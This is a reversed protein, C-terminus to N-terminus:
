PLEIIRTPVYPSAPTLAGKAKVYDLVIDALVERPASPVPEILMSFTDGGANTFNNTVMVIPKTSGKPVDTGDDLTVKTVRSGPTNSVKWEFKFGAIQLFGGTTGGGGVAASYVSHELVQWLLDGTIARVVATNGFPLVSYVDGIVLDCPTTASCGTRVLGTTQPKYSSPLAARIGGGNSFAIQANTPAGKYRDLLADSVLDGIPLEVRREKVGDRILVDTTTGVKVDFQVALADAYPKLLAAAGPDPTVADAACSKGDAACALGTPCAVAPCFASRQCKGATCTWPKADTPCAASASCTTAALVEPPINYSSHGLPDVIEAKASTVVGAAVTVNVRGYMRGKSKSEIVLVPGVNLNAMLDTHDGLVVDIGSLGKAFDILPGGLAGTSDKGTTGMHTMAIVVNAGAARADQAAKNAAAIPEKITLTGLVGPLVLTPADPNTIGLLAVRIIGDPVTVDYMYYPAIVKKTATDLAAGAGPINTSIWRCTSEAMRDKLYPLGHDFNHNGFTDAFLGLYTLGEVAPKDDNFLSLAPTAGFEDGQTLLWTNPNAARDKDLYAKLVGLGGYSRAVGTADNETLPDTQGHWDSLSLFQLTGSGKPTAVDPVSDSATDAAVDSSGDVATDAAPADAVNGDKATDASADVGVESTPPTPDDSSCAALSVAALTTWACGVLSQLRIRMADEGSRFDYFDLARRHGLRADDL